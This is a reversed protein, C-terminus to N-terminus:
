IGDIVAAAIMVDMRMAGGIRRPEFTRAQDPEHIRQRAVRGSLNV